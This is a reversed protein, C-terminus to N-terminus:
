FRWAPVPTGSSVVEELYTGTQPTPGMLHTVEGREVVRVALISHWAGDGLQV